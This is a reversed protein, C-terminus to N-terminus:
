FARQLPPVSTKQSMVRKYYRKNINQKNKQMIIWSPSVYLFHLIQCILFAKQTIEKSMPSSHSATPLWHNSCDISKGHTQFINSNTYGMTEKIM